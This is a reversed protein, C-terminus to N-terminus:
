SYTSIAYRDIDAPLPERFTLYIEDWSTPVIGLRSMASAMITDCHYVMPASEEGPLRFRGYRDYKYATNLYNKDQLIQSDLLAQVVERKLGWFGGRLLPRASLPPRSLHGFWEADPFTPVRRLTIDPEVKIFLDCDAPCTEFIRRLWAGGDIPKLRTPAITIPSVLPAPGDPVLAISEKPFLSRM